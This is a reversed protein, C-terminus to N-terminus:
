ESFIGEEPEQKSISDMILPDATVVYNVTEFEVKVNSASSCEPDPNDFSDIIIILNIIINSCKLSSVM